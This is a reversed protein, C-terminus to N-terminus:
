PVSCLVEANQSTFQYSLSAIIPSDGAREQEFWRLGQQCALNLQRFIFPLRIGSLIDVVCQTPKLWFDALFSFHQM